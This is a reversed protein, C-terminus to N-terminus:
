VEKHKLEFHVLDHFTQDKIQTDMDWDAGCRLSIGMIKAIGVVFGAFYYNRRIDNWDVPYAIVDVAESPDSNHKGDPWKVKSKGTKHMENQREESRHGELITCDFFRVITSFLRDLDVHCTGLRERSRKSFKPM